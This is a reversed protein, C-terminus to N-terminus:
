SLYFPVERLGLTKAVAAHLHADKQHVYHVSSLVTKGDPRCVSGQGDEALGYDMLTKGKEPILVTLRDKVRNGLFIVFLNREPDLSLHNGTFGAIGIARAGMYVPIESYYQQPHRVYCQYGLFQSWSGDPMKRGTRNLAMERLSKEGVIRGALVARCFRILDGRTSFLGAHGCLDGSNGQLLAAKPDHPVGPEPGERFIERGNEIRFEHDYCMCDKKRVEPVRAWTETMGAKELILRRVLGDLPMGGVAELVYKLVMAPMDSYARPGSPGASHIGFLCDRAEERSGCADVRGETQLSVAFGMLQGVTVERLGTFRPEYFAVPKGFDLAGEEKLKMASLGTFLKTVSALDFVTRDSLSEGDMATETRSGAGCAVSLASLIGTQRTFFFVGEELATM